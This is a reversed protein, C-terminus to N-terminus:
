EQYNRNAVATKIANLKKSIKDIASERYSENLENEVSSLLVNPDVTTRIENKRVIEKGSTEVIKSDSIAALLSEGTSYKNKYISRAEKKDASVVEYEKEPGKATTAAIRQKEKWHHLQKKHLDNENEKTVAIIGSNGKQFSLQVKNSDKGNESPNKTSQEKIVVPRPHNTNISNSEEQFMIISGVFLLGVFSAAIYIWSYNRKPKNADDLMAELKDWADASPVITRAEMKDKISKDFKNPEM